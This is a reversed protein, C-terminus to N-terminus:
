PGATASLSPGIAAILRDGDDAEFRVAMEAVLIEQPSSLEAEPLARLKVADKATTIITHTHKAQALSRLERLDNTSYRHHDAFWKKGVVDSGAQRLLREFAMPNGIGAFAVTRRGQLSEVPFNTESAIAAALPRLGTLQHSCKFTPIDPHIARVRGCIAALAVESVQDCRTLLVADARRLGATTERLLGRPLVHDHGFPNTADLLVLDFDRHLRRHQFGDDMIFVKIEPYKHLADGAGRVRDPDVIVRVSPENPAHLQQELLKAEDSLGNHSKYGRTLIAIEGQTARRLESALWAVVPTKGTGGTTLNGVSIVPKKARRSPLLGVDFSKNRLCMAARYLPEVAALGARALMPGAGRAEGSIVRLFDHERASV